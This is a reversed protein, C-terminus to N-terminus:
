SVPLRERAISRTATLLWRHAAFPPTSPWEGSGNHDRTIVWVAGPIAALRTPEGPIAIRRTIRRSTADIRAVLNRSPDSAWVTDSAGGSGVVALGGPAIGRIKTMTSPELQTM